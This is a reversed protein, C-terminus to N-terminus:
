LFLTEFQFKNKFFDYKTKELLTWRGFNGFLEDGSLRDFNCWIEKRGRKFCTQSHYGEVMLNM